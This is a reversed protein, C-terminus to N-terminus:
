KSLDKCTANQLEEKLKPTIVYSKDNDNVRDDNWNSRIITQYHIDITPNNHYTDFSIQKCELSSIKSILDQKNDIPNIAEFISFSNLKFTGILTLNLFLLGLTAGKLIKVWVFEEEQTQKEKNTITLNTEKILFERYKFNAYVLPFYLILLVGIPVLILANVFHMHQLTYENFISLQSTITDWIIVFVGYWVPIFFISFINIDVQTNKIYSAVSDKTIENNENPVLFLQQNKIINLLEWAKKSSLGVVLLDILTPTIVSWKQEVVGNFIAAITKFTDGLFVFFLLVSGVLYLTNLGAQVTMAKKFENGKHLIKKSDIEEM